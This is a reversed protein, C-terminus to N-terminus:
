KPSETRFPVSCRAKETIHDLDEGREGPQRPLRDQSLPEDSM